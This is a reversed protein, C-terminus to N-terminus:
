RESLGTWFTDRSPDQPLDKRAIHEIHGDVFIVPMTVDEYGPDGPEPVPWPPDNFDVNINGAHNGVMISAFVEGNYPANMLLAMRSPEEISFMMRGSRRSNGDSDFGPTFGIPDPTFFKGNIACTRSADPLNRARQALPWAVMSRTNNGDWDLYRHSGHRHYSSLYQIWNPGDQGGPHASPTRGGNEMTYAMIGTHAARMRAHTAPTLARERIKSIAPILIAALLIVVAIVALMETLTFGVRTGKIFSPTLPEQSLM